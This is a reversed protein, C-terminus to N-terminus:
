TNDGEVTEASVNGDADVVLKFGECTMVAAAKSNVESLADAANKAYEKATTESQKAATAAAQSESLDNELRAAVDEDWLTAIDNYRQDTTTRNMKICIHGNPKIVVIPEHPRCSPNYKEFEAATDGSFQIRKYGGFPLTAEAM